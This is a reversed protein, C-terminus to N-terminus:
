VFQNQSIRRHEEYATQHNVQFLRVCEKIDKLDFSLWNSLKLAYRLRQVRSDYTDTPFLELQELETDKAFNFVIQKM